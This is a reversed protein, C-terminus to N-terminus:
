TLKMRTNFRLEDRKKTHPPQYTNEEYTAQKKFIQFSERYKRRDLRLKRGEKSNFENARLFKSSKWLFDWRQFSRLRDGKNQKKLPSYIVSSQRTKIARSKKRKISSSKKTTFDSESFVLSPEEYRPEMHSSQSDEDESKGVKLQKGKRPEMITLGIEITLM